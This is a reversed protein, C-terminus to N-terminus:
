KLAGDYTHTEWISEFEAKEIVWTHFEEGWIHANCEEVTPIPTIGITGEYLDPINRTHVDTFIGISCLTLRENGTDAKYLIWRRNERRRTRGFSSSTSWRM